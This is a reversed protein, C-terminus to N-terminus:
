SPQVPTHNELCELVTDLNVRLNALFPGNEKALLAPDGVLMEDARQHGISEVAEGRFMNMTTETYIRAAQEVAYWLWQEYSDFDDPYESALDHIMAELAQTMSNPESYSLNNQVNEVSPAHHHLVEDSGLEVAPASGLPNVDVIDYISAVWWDGGISHDAWSAAEETSGFIGNVSFGEVPNGTLVTCPKDIVALPALKYPVCDKGIVRMQEWDIESVPIPSEFIVTDNHM